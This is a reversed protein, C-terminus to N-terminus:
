DFLGLTDAYLQIQAREDKELKRLAYVRRLAKVDFGDSKIEKWVESIDDSIEKRDDGLRDLREFFADLQKKGTNDSM